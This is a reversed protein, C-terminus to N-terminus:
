SHRKNDVTLLRATQNRHRKMLGVHSLVGLSLNRGRQASCTGSNKFV